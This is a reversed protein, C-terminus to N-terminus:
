YVRGKWWVQRRLRWRLSEAAIMAGATYGLPFLLGYVLPIGFYAAGAIHLGFAAASALLTPVTAVCASQTGNVCNLVDVTPLLVAAWAMFLAAAGTVLTPKVGGLMHVLNKAVGPWLTDWGTYMRTSLQKSGDLLLVRGGRRKILRAFEVDEVISTHVAAFGGAAEYAERPLLMFQGTAVADSSDPAQVRKLDQTFSLLYLGCPIILRESFSQLEQAPALSLLDLSRSQAARVASHLLNPAACMDADLFCLWETDAPMAEVGACCANVKGKWGPSLPPSRVLRVNAASRMISQVIEATADTSEDDVVIIVLRDAPYFQATLSELCRGINAAEDRAPVVVTLRPWPTTDSAPVAQLVPLAGRQGFARAILWFVMTAWVVSVILAM